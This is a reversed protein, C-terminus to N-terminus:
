HNTLLGGGIKNGDEFIYFDLDVFEYAAVFHTIGRVVAGWEGWTLRGSPYLKLRVSGSNTQFAAVSMPEDSGFHTNVINAAQLLCFQVDSPSIVGGFGEFRIVLDSAPVPFYFPDPPLKSSPDAYAFLVLTALPLACELSTPATINVTSNMNIEGNAQFLAVPNVAAASSAAFRMACLYLAFVLSAGKINRM